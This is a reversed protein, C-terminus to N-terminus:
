ITRTCNMMKKMDVQHLVALTALFQIFATGWVAAVVKAKEEINIGRKHSLGVFCERERVLYVLREELHFTKSSM